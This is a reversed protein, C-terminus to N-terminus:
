RWRRRRRRDRVAAPPRATSRSSRLGGYTPVAATKATTPTTLAVVYEVQAGQRRDPQLRVRRRTPTAARDPRRRRLAPHATACRPSRPSRGTSRTTPTTTTRPTPPTPASCTTTSTTPRGALRVHDPPRGQRRRPRHLGARRRLLRGAPRPHPVDARPRAPGPRVLEADGAGPNDQRRVRRHPGHRPQRPLDAAVYANADADTYRDDGAYLGRWGSGAGRAAAFSRAAEQFPFDLTADCAAARHLVRRHVAPDGSYVEGFM